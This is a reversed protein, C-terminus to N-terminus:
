IVRVLFCDDLYELLQHVYDKSIAIGRWKLSAYFKEVSFLSGANGLLQRVLWRLGTVNRV